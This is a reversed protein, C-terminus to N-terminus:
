RNLRYDNERLAQETVLTVGGMSNIANWVNLDPLTRTSPGTITLTFGEPNIYTDGPKLPPHTAPNWHSHTTM